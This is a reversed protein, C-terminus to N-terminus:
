QADQESQVDTFGLASVQDALTYQQPQQYQEQQQEYQPEPTYEQTPQETIVDTLDLEPGTDQTTEEVSTEEMTTEEQTIDSSM